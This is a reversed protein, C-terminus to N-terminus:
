QQTLQEEVVWEVGLYGPKTRVFWVTVGAQVRDWTSRSVSFTERTHDPRWSGTAFYYSTSKGTRKWKELVLVTHDAPPAQDLLRNGGALTAFSWSTSVLLVAILWAVLTRGRFAFRRSFAAVATTIAAAAIVAPLGLRSLLEDGSLFGSLLVGALGGLSLLIGGLVWLMPHPTAIAHHFRSAATISGAPGLALGSKLQVLAAIARRFTSPPDPDPLDERWPRCTAAVHDGYFEIRTFGLDFLQRLARHTDPARFFGALDAGVRGSIMFAADVDPVDTQFEASLGIARAARDWRDEPVVLVSGGFTVPSKVSLWVGPPEVQRGKNYRAPLYRYWWADRGLVHETPRTSQWESHLVLGDRTVTTGPGPITRADGTPM